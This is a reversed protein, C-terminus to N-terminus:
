IGTGDETRKFDFYAQVDGHSVLDVFPQDRCLLEALRRTEGDLGCDVLVLTSALLGSRRLWLWGRVRKELAPERGRLHWLTVADAGVAPLLLAGLLCWLFLLVGGCVLVATVANM